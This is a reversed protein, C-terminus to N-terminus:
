LCNILSYDVAYLKEVRPRFEELINHYSESDSNHFKYNPLDPMGPVKEQVKHWSKYISNQELILGYDVVDFRGCEYQTAFHADIQSMDFSELFGLFKDFSLPIDDIDKRYDPFVNLYQEVEEYPHQILKHVFGSVLREFPDRLCVFNFTNKLEDGPYRSYNFVDSHNIDKPFDPHDYPMNAKFSYIANAISTSANKRIAIFSFGFDLTNSNIFWM